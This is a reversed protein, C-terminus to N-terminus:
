DQQLWGVAREAVMATPLNTNARPITPMVSADAVHLNAVGVVRCRANVVTGPEEAAGMRCSGAPHGMPSVYRHLIELPLDGAQIDAFRGFRASLLPGRLWSPIQSLIRAGWRQGAGSLGGREFQRLSLGAGLLFAARSHDAVHPSSLLQRTLSIGQAMRHLDRPDSLLRFDIKPCLGEGHWRLEVSGRSWPLYLANAILGFATGFSAGSVRGAAFIFLDGAQAGPGSSTTRVGALGFARLDSSARQAPAVAVAHMAYCHNQLNQGVGRRDVVPDVGLSALAAAPGVGSRLLLAPSGIGGAALTVKRGRIVITESGSSLEVGIAQKGDFAVRHVLHDTLVQLNSRRRVDASLHTSVSSQRRGRAIANPIPFFGDGDDANADQLRSLGAEECSRQLGRIWPPWEADPVSTVPYSQTSASGSSARGLMSDFCPRVDEASWGQAGSAAWGDYDADIGRLAMMGNISSGGGLVKAVAYPAPDSGSVGTALCDQWFLAPNVTASPFPDWIEDHNDSAAVDPGAEILLVSTSPDESLRSALVCGATGGGVVIHDFARGRLRLADPPAAEAM